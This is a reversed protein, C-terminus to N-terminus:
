DIWVHAGGDEGDDGDGTAGQGDGVVGGVEVAVGGRLGVGGADDRLDAITLTKGLMRGGTSEICQRM